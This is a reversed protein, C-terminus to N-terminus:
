NRGPRRENRSSALPSMAPLWSAAPSNTTCGQQERDFAAWVFGLGLSLQGLYYGLVRLLAARDDLTDGSVSIVRIRLMSKGPTQGAKRTWFYWYYPTTTAIDLVFATLLEAGASQPSLVLMLAFRLVALILTDIVLSLFRAAIGALPAPQPTAPKKCSPAEPPPSAAASHLAFAPQQRPRTRPPRARSLRGPPTALAERAPAFNSNVELARRYNERASSIEGMRERAQGVHFWIEEVFHGGGDNLNVKALTLTDQYRGVANYAELPGFQYWLMRFPLSNRRAEDFATAAYEFAERGYWPALAVYNSGINFWIFPNEPERLAAQRQEELTTLANKQPDADPGLFGLMQQELGSEYLVIYSHNFHQWYESVQAYSYRKQPGRYSDHAIFEREADDYGILLLYHGM